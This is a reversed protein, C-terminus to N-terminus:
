RRTGHRTTVASAWGTYSNDYLLHWSRELSRYGIGKIEVQIPTGVPGSEPSIDVTMDIAYAVQTFLRGNQQLVIDHYFGFDEPTVFSAELRGSADSAVRAMEYAIPVFERGKYESETVKWAGTVTRWVLQFEENAPLGEARVTFPAGAAGHLPAVQLTGVYGGQPKGVEVAPGSVISASAFPLPACVLAWAVLSGAFPGRRHRM